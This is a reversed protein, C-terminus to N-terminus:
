VKWPLANVYETGICVEDHIEAEEILIEDQCKPCTYYEKKM